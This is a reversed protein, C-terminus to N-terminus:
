KRTLILIWLGFGIGLKWSFNNMYNGTAFEVGLSFVSRNKKAMFPGAIYVRM